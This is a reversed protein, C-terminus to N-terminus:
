AVRARQVEGTLEPLPVKTRRSRPYSGVCGHVHTAVFMVMFVTAVIGSEKNSDVLWSPFLCRSEGLVLILDLM